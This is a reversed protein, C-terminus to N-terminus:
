PSSVKPIELGLAAEGAALRRLEDAMAVSAQSRAPRSAMASRRMRESEVDLEDLIRRATGGSTEEDDVDRVLGRRQRGETREQAFGDLVAEGEDDGALRGAREVVIEERQETGVHAKVVEEFTAELDHRLRQERGIRRTLDGAIPGHREIMETLREGRRSALETGIEAAEFDAFTEESQGTGLEFFQLQIRPTSAFNEPPPHCGRTAPPLPNCRNPIRHCRMRQRETNGVALRWDSIGKM